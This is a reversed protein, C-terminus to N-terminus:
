TRRHLANNYNASNRNNKDSRFTQWSPRKEDKRPFLPSYEQTNSWIFGLTNNPTNNHFAVLAQSGKYGMIYEKQIGLGKSMIEVQSRAMENDAFLKQEFAKDQIITCIPIFTINREMAYDSITILAQRMAVITILFVKKNALFRADRELEKIFSNGTGSFDDIFVINAIHAWECDKIMSLDTICVNSSLENKIKYEFWYENSSNYRGHNSKIFAFITNNENVCPDKLLQQHLISLSENVEAHSIYILSMLLTTAIDRYDSPIQNIWRDFISVFNALVTDENSGRIELFRRKIQCSDYSDM